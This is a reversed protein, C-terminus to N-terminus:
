IVISKSKKITDSRNKYCIPNAVQDQRLRKPIEGRSIRSKGFKKQSIETGGFLIEENEYACFPIIYRERSVFDRAFLAAMTLIQLGTKGSRIWKKLHFSSHYKAIDYAIWFM